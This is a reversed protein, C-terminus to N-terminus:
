PASLEARAQELLREVDKSQRSLQELGAVTQERDIQHDAVRRGAFDSGKEGVGVRGPDVDAVVEVKEVVPTEKPCRLAVTPAVEIEVPRVTGEFTAQGLSRPLDFLDHTGIWGTVVCKDDPGTPIM